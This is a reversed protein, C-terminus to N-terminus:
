RTGSSTTPRRGPAAYRSTPASRHRPVPARGPDRRRRDARLDDFSLDRVDVGALRVAGADADYSGRCSRRSRRSAPARRDSSRSRRGPSSGSPCATSCRRAPGTTSCPSRRSRPWRCRTPPRTASACTPSSSRSRVPPCRRAAARAGQDAARHRAGRVGARLQRARHRRRPPRHGAGDAPRVAPQAAAGDDRRHGARPRRAARPLRRPRLDAGPGARVVLTLARFFVEVAM